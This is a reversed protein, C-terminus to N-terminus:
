AGAAPAGEAAATALVAARIDDLLPAAAQGERVAATVRRACPACSEVHKELSWADTEPATGAAYRRALHDAVHWTTM